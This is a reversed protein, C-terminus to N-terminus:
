SLSKICADRLIHHVEKEKEKAAKSLVPRPPITRTGLEQYIMIDLDSGVHANNKDIKYKISDRLKGTRLLPEDEPFGHAAREEKTAEALPTWGFDYTGIAHKAREVVLECAKKLGHNAVKNKAALGGTFQAFQALSTFNRTAM